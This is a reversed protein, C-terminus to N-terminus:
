KNKIYIQKGDKLINEKLGDKKIDEFNILDVTYIIDLEYIADRLLNLRTSTIRTGFLAIDIDSTTKYDGRARSGFIMAKEIEQFKELQKVISGIVYDKLGFMMM